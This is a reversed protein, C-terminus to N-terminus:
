GPTSRPESGWSVPIGAMLEANTVEDAHWVATLGTGFPFELQGDDEFCIVVHTDPGAPHNDVWQVHEVVATLEGDPGVLRYGEDVHQAQVALLKPQHKAAREDRRYM